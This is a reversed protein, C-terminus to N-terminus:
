RERKWIFRQIAVIIGRPILLNFGFMFTVIYIFTGVKVLNSIQTLDLSLILSQKQFYDSFSSYGLYEYLFCKTIGFSHIIDNIDHLMYIITLFATYSCFMYFYFSIQSYNPECLDYETERKTLVRLGNANFCRAQFIVACYWPILLHGFGVFFLLFGSSLIHHLGFILVIFYFLIPWLLESILSSVILYLFFSSFIRTSNNDLILGSIPEYLNTQELGHLVPTDKSFPDTIIRIIKQAKWM